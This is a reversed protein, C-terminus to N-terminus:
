CVSRKGWGLVSGTIHFFAGPRPFPSPAPSMGQTKALLTWPGPGLKTCCLRRSPVPSPSLAGAEGAEQRRLLWSLVNCSSSLVNTLPQLAESGIIVTNFNYEARWSFSHQSIKFTLLFIPPFGRESFSIPTSILKRPQLIPRMAGLARFDQRGPFRNNEASM